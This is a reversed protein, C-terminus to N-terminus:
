KTFAQLRENFLSKTSKNEEHQFYVRFVEIYDDYIPEYQGVFKRLRTEIFQSKESRCYILM